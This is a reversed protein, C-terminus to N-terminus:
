RFHLIASKCNKRTIYDTVTRFYTVKMFTVINMLQENSFIVEASLLRTMRETGWTRTPTQMEIYIITCSIRTIKMMADTLAVKLTQTLKNERMENNVDKLYDRQFHRDISILM